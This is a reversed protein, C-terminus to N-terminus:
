LGMQTHNIMRLLQKIPLEPLCLFEGPTMEQKNYRVVKGVPLLQFPQGYDDFEGFNEGFHVKSALFRCYIM